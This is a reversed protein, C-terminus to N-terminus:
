TTKELGTPFCFAPDKSSVVMLLQVIINGLVFNDLAFSGLVFKGLLIM